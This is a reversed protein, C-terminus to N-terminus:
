RCSLVENLKEQVTNFDQPTRKLRRRRDHPFDRYDFEVLTIGHKPLEERRRQDYLARQEGRSVGSATRRQDFCPVAETHQREHYEIVLNIGPYYADVPLSNGTDGLLFSFRHARNAIHRLARDCLDIVYAEDSDSRKAM